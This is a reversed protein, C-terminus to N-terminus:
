PLVKKMIKDIELLNVIEIEEREANNIVIDAGIVKGSNVEHGIQLWALPKTARKNYLIVWEELRIGNDYNKTWALKLTASKEVENIIDTRTMIEHKGKITKIAFTNLHYTRVYVFKGNLKGNTVRVRSITTGYQYIALRTYKPIKAGYERIGNPNDAYPIERTTVVASGNKLSPSTANSAECFIGVMLAM